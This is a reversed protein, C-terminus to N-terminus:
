KRQYQNDALTCHVLAAIAIELKPINECNLHKKAINKTSEIVSQAELTLLLLASKISLRTQQCFREVLVNVSM